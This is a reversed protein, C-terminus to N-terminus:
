FHTGGGYKAALWRERYLHYAAECTKATFAANFGAGVVAGTVPVVQALKAKTLRVGLAKAIQQIVRVFAYEELDKWTKKAAVDKAIKVLESMAIQKSSDTPNSSLGLINLAYLREQQTSIDFGCYTAYEGVARLNLTILAVIDIPIGPLGAFGTSAGEGMAITKYKAGLFGITKDIHELELKFIDNHDCVNHGNSKYEDFITNERVSWQSFDNLLSVLGGVSKGITWEVGPIKMVGEGVKKIPWNIVSLAKGFIGKEPNKWKEIQKIADTEYTNPM